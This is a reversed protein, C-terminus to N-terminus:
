STKNMAQRQNLWTQIQDKTENAIKEFYEKPNDKELIIPKFIGLEFGSNVNFYQVVPLIPIGLKSAIVFAGTKFEALDYIAGSSRKGTTGGEPFIALAANPHNEFLQQTFGVLEDTRKAPGGAREVSSVGPPPVDISGTARFLDGLQGPQEFSAEYINDGLAEAVPYFPMYYTLYPYYINPIPHMIGNARLEEPNMSILKFSGFHNSAIMVPKNKGLEELYERGTKIQSNVLKSAEKASEQTVDHIYEPQDLHSFADRWNVIELERLKKFTEEAWPTTLIKEKMVVIIRRELPDDLTPLQKITAEIYRPDDKRMFIVNENKTQEMKTQDLEAKM